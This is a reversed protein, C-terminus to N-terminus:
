GAWKSTSGLGGQRFVEGFYSDNDVLLYKQFIAQAIADGAKAEFIKDGENRIKIWCHGENGENNYYDCDIIGITNALRVFYKFGIGSRPVITLYEDPLMYVKIGTPIKIEAGRSLSFNIPTFIDYGASRPTARKPYAVNTYLEANDPMDKYWQEFTIKEFGRTKGEM